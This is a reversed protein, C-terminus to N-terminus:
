TVGALWARMSPTHVAVLGVLNLAVTVWFTSIFEAKATKHRLWQQAVLAGPWGGFLGLIHLTSESTRWQGRIAAAKDFGYALFAVISAIGYVWLTFPLLSWRAAILFIVAILLPIALARVVTWPAPSAPARQRPM